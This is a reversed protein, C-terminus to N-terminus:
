VRRAPARPDDDARGALDVIEDHDARDPAFAVDHDALVAVDIGMAREVRARSAAEAIVHEDPGAARDNGGVMREIAGVDLDALLAEHRRLAAHHHLVVDPDARVADKEVAGIDFRARHDGRAAHDRAPHAAAGDPSSVRATEDARSACIRLRCDDPAAIVSSAARSSSKLASATGSTAGSSVTVRRSASLKGRSDIVSYACASSRRRWPSMARANWALATRRAATSPSAAIVVPGGGRFLTNWVM